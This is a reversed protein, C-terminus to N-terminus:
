TIAYSSRVALLVCCYFTTVYNTCEAAKSTGLHTGALYSVRADKYKFKVSVEHRKSHYPASHIYGSLRGFHAETRCYYLTRGFHAVATRCYYVLIRRVEYWATIWPYLISTAHAVRYPQNSKLEQGRRLEISICFTRAATRCLVLIERM